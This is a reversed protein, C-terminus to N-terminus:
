GNPLSEAQSQATKTNAASREKKLWSEYDQQTQVTLEGRMDFHAPGCLQSCAIEYTGTKTAEFWAIIKRGPVIDQKLRLQPVYFDHVVDESRLELRVVAGIPVHLGSEKLDSGADFRGDPGPYTFQWVFQSATVRVTLAAPPPAGKVIEWAHGGAADIGLDCVLVLLAPILIWAAQKPSEGSVYTARAGPRRRYRIAFYILLVQLLLFWFASLYFILDIVSDIEGGYSSVSPLFLHSIM